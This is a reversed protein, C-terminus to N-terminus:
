DCKHHWLLLFNQLCEMWTAPAPAAIVGAAQLLLQQLRRGRLLNGLALVSSEDGGATSHQVVGSFEQITQPRGRSIGSATNGICTGGRSPHHCRVTEAGRATSLTEGM